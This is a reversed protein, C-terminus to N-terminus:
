GMGCGLLSGIVCAELTARRDKDMKLLYVGFYDLISIFLKKDGPSFSLADMALRFFLSANAADLQVETEEKSRPATRIVEQVASNAFNRGALRLLAAANFALRECELQWGEPSDGPQL